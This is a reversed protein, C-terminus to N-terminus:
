KANRRRRIMALAGLGLVAMTAPEPVAGAVVTGPGGGIGNSYTGTDGNSFSTTIAYYQTGATLAMSGAGSGGGTKSKNSFTGTVLSFTGFEDDDGAKYNALPTAANFANQYVFIFGDWSQGSEFIYNGSATVHFMQVDYNVATGVGSLNSGDDLPRNWIPDGASITGTWLLTQAQAATVLVALSAVTLLSKKMIEGFLWGSGV